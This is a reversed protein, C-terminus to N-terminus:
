ERLFNDRLCNIPFTKKYNERKKEETLSFRYCGSSKLQMLTTHNKTLQSNKSGKSTRLGAESRFCVTFETLLKMRAEMRFRNTEINIELQTM